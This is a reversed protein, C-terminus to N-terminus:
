CCGESDGCSSCGGGGCGGAAHVHGHNLEEESADRVETVEGKFFLHQGALPHNFDMKVAADTVETVTGTLRNGSADQMPIKTGLSLLSEDVKGDVEFASKPVDVIADQNVEGYADGASLDFDFKDGIALGDINSEFKPLLGGAGYLFTLPSDNTLSEVVDGEPGNLRLEYILSVVKDKKITM